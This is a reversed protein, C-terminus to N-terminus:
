LAALAIVVLLLTLLLAWGRLRAGGLSASLGCKVLTNALVAVVISGAATALATDGSRALTAM